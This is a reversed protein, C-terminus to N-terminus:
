LNNAEALLAQRSSNSSPDNAVDQLSNAFSQITATLGTDSDALMNDLSEALSVFADARSFSGSANRLQGALLDDSMRRVTTINVGTGVFDSGIRQAQREALEVRQRSYGPTNANAINNSTTTLARQQSLLASLGINLLDAM